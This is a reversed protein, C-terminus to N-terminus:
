GNLLEKVVQQVVKGDAQGQLRAMLPGMVKGTDKTTTAGTQAVIESAISKIEDYGLQRPMFSELVELKAQEEAVVEDRGAKRFEEITERRNKAEKQLIANIEQPSLDKQSDVEVQKVASLTMRIVDRRVNDKAKMAEKLADNLTKKPDDM